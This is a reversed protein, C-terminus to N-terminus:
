FPLDRCGLLAIRNKLTVKETDGDKKIEIFKELRSERPVYYDRLSYYDTDYDSGEYIRSTKIQQFNFLMQVFYKGPKLRSFVFKGDGNTQTSIAYKSAERNIFVNTSKDEKKERLQYWKEFYPTVPYLMVRVYNADFKLGNYYACARGILTSTGPQLANAALNADFEAQPFLVKRRGEFGPLAEGGLSKWKKRDANALNDKGWSEYLNARVFYAEADQPDFQITKSFDAEALEFKNKQEFYIMGRNYYANKDNPNIQIALNYSTLALDYAGVDNFIYGSYFYAPAYNPNVEAAKVFNALAKDYNGIKMFELGINVLTEASENSQAKPKQPSNQPKPTQSINSQGNVCQKLQDRANLGGNWEIEAVNKGDISIGFKQTEEIGNIAAEMTPVAFFIAGLKGKDGDKQNLIYTVNIVEVTAPSNGTQTLTARIRTPQAPKPISSSMFVFFAGSKNGNLSAISAIVGKRFYFASCSESPKDGTFNWFGNVVNKYRPDNRMEAFINGMISGLAGYAAIKEADSPAPNIPKCENGDIGSSLYTGEPCVYIVEQASTNLYFTFVFLIGIFVKTLITQNFLNTFSRM